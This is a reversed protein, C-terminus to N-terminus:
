VVKLTKIVVVCDQINGDFHTKQFATRELWNMPEEALQAGTMIIALNLGNTVTNIIGMDVALNVRQILSPHSFFFIGIQIETSQTNRHLHPLLENLTGM